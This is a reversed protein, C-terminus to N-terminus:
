GRKTIAHRGAARPERAVQWVLGRTDPQKTPRKTRSSGPGFIKNKSQWYLLPGIPTAIKENSVIVRSVGEKQADPRMFFLREGLADLQGGMRHVLVLPPPPCM